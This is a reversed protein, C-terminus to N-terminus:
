QALGRRRDRAALLEAYFGPDIVGDLADLASNIQDNDGFAILCADALEPAAPRHDHVPYGLAQIEPIRVDLHDPHAFWIRTEWDYHWLERRITRIVSTIPSFNGKGTFLIQPWNDGSIPPNIHVTLEKPSTDRPRARSDKRERTSISNMVPRQPRLPGNHQESM